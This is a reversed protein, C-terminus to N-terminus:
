AAKEILQVFQQFLPHCEMHWPPTEPHFQVGSVPKGRVAIGAPTGDFLSVHTEDVGAPLSDRVVAHIHHMAVAEVRGDALCQVPHNVGYRGQQLRQTRAGLALALVQMGLGVAFLPKGTQLWAAVLPRAPSAVPDGPGNSVFLADAGLAEVAALDSDPPVLTVKLGAGALQRLLSYKAGCDVVVVHRAAAGPAMQRYGQGLQWAGQTWPTPATTPQAPPAADALAAAKARLADLDFEGAANCAIIAHLPGNRRSLRMLARTDVGAIAVVGEARLWDAFGSTARFNAPAGIPEALICGRAQAAPSELDEANAGVVGVHPFTFAIITGAYSADSLTEQFGAMATNCCLLGGADGDAGCSGGRFVSGDSLVLVATNPTKSAPASSRGGDVPRVTTNDAM